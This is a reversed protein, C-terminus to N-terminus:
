GHLTGMRWFTKKVGTRLARGPSRGTENAGGSAEAPPSADRLYEYTRTLPLNARASKRLEMQSSRVIQIARGHIRSRARRVLQGSASRTTPPIASTGPTM